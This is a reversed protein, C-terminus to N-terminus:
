FLTAQKPKGVTSTITGDSVKTTLVDGKKVQAASRVVNGQATTTISFGRDLVAQPSVARLQMELARV